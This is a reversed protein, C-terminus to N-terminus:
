IGSTGIDTANPSERVDSEDEMERREALLEDEMEELELESADAFKWRDGM